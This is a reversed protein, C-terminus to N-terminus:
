KLGLIERRYRSPSMGVTKKFAKTFYFYDRYGTQEAIASVSLREDALLEKAKQMRRSSLYESFPMGLEEKLLSSLHGASLNYKEALANLTINETYRQQLEEVIRGVASNAEEEEPAAKEKGGESNLLEKLRKLLESLLEPEVPKLLYDLAGLKLAKQAYEFEAYGSILVVRTDLGKERLREALELGNLGPMRIDSFVVDPKTRLIEELATVGNNAEGIVRFPEGSQEVLKKLGMAVWIEDDAIFIKYVTRKM